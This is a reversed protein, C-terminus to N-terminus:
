GFLYVGEATKVAMLESGSVVPVAEEDGAYLAYLTFQIDRLEEADAYCREAFGEDFIGASVYIEFFGDFDVKEEAYYSLDIDTLTWSEYGDEDFSTCLRAFADEPATGESELYAEYAELYPPYMAARYADYDGRDIAEFYDKICAAYAADVEDSAHVTLGEAPVAGAESQEATRGGCATCLLLAACLPLIRTM